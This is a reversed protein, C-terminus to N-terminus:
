DALGLQALVRVPRIRMPLESPVANRRGYRDALEDGVCRTRASRRSSPTRTAFSVLERWEVDTMTHM